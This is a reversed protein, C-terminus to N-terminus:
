PRQQNLLRCHLNKTRMLVIEDATAEEAPSQLNLLLRCVDNTFMAVPILDQTRFVARRRTKLYGRRIGLDPCFLATDAPCGEIQCLNRTQGYM